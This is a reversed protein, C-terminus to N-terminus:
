HSLCAKCKHVLTRMRTKVLITNEIMSGPYWKSVSVQLEPVYIPPHVQLLHCPGHDGGEQIKIGHMLEFLLYM